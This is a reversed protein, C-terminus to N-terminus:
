RRNIPVWSPHFPTKVRTKTDPKAPPNNKPHIKKRITKGRITKILHNNKPRNHDHDHNHNYKYKYLCPMGQ